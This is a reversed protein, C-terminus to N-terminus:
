FQVFRAAQHAPDREAPDDRGGDQHAEHPRHRNLRVDCWMSILGHEWCRAVLEQYQSALKGIDPRKGEMIAQKILAAAGAYPREGTFIEFIVMGLAFVDTCSYEKSEYM